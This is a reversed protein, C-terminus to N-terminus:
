MADGDFYTWSHRAMVETLADTSDVCALIGPRGNLFKAMYGVGHPRTEPRYPAPDSDDVPRGEPDTFVRAVDGFARRLAAAALDDGEDLWFGVRSMGQGAARSAAALFVKEGMAERPQAWGIEDVDVGHAHFYGVPLAGDCV